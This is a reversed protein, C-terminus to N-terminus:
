SDFVSPWLRRAIEIGSVAVVSWYVNAILVSAVFRRWDRASLGDFAHSGPRLYLITIFPDFRISLLVLALADSRRLLRRLWGRWGATEQGDRLAKVTEIGLWDRGTWDYFRLMAWCLVFSLITMVIAGWFPGGRWIVYPYLLYDFAWVQVHNGLLGLGLVGLRWRRSSSARGSRSARSEGADPDAGLQEDLEGSAASSFRDAVSLMSSARPQLRDLM